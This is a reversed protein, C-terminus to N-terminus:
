LMSSAKRPTLPVGSSSRARPRVIFAATRRFTPTGTQTPIAPVLVRAFSALLHALFLGEKSPTQWQSETGAASLSDRILRRDTISIQPTAVRSVLRSLPKPM